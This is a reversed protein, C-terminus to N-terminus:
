LGAIDWRIDGIFDLPVMLGTIGFVALINFFNSGIVNGIAMDVHNKKIASYSVILEPLSTGVAIMTFAIVKDTIGIADAILRANIVMLEAGGIICILGFVLQFWSKSASYAVDSEHEHKRAKKYSWFIYLFLITLLISGDVRTINGDWALFSFVATAIWLWIIDPLFRNGHIPFRIIM